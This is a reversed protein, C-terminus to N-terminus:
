LWRGHRTAPDAFSIAKRKELVGHRGMGHTGYCYRCFSLHDSVMARERSNPSEVADMVQEAQEIAFFLNETQTREDAFGIELTKEEDEDTYQCYLDVRNRLAGELIEQM